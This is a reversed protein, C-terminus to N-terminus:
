GISVLWRCQRANGNGGATSQSRGTLAISERQRDLRSLLEEEIDEGFSDSRPDIRNQFNSIVLIGQEGAIVVTRSRGVWSQFEGDWGILRGNFQDNTVVEINGAIESQIADNDRKSIRRRFLKINDQLAIGDVNRGTFRLNQFGQN